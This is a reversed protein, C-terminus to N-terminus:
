PLNEPVAHTLGKPPTALLQGALNFLLKLPTFIAMQGHWKEKSDATGLAELIVM